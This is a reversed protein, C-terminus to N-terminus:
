ARSVERGSQAGGRRFRGECPRCRVRFALFVSVGTLLCAKGTDKCNPSLLLRYTGRRAGLCENLAQETDRARRKEIRGSLPQDVIQHYRLAEEM